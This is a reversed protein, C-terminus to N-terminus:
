GSLTDRPQAASRHQEAFAVREVGEVRPIKLMADITQDNWIMETLGPGDLLTLGYQYQTRRTRRPVSEVTRRSNANM